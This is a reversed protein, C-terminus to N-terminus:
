MFLPPWAPSYFSTGGTHFSQLSLEAATCARLSVAPFWTKYCQKEWFEKQLESNWKIETFYSVSGNIKTKFFLMLSAQVIAKVVIPSFPSIASFM